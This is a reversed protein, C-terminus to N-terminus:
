LSLRRDKLVQAIIVTQADQALEDANMSGAYLRASDCLTEEESLDSRSLLLYVKIHDDTSM